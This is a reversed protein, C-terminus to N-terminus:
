PVPDKKVVFLRSSSCKPCDGRKELREREFALGVIPANKEIADAVRGSLAVSGADPALTLLYEEISYGASQTAVTRIRRVEINKFIRLDRPTKVDSSELENGFEGRYVKAVLNCVAASHPESKVDTSGRKEKSGPSYLVVTQTPVYSPLLILQYKEANHGCEVWGAVPKEAYFNEGEGGRLAKFSVTLDNGSQTISKEDLGKDSDFRWQGLGDGCRLLNEQYNSITVLTPQGPRVTQTGNLYDARPYVAMATGVQKRAEAGTDKEAASSVGAISILFVAAIFSKM